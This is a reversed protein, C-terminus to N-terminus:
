AGQPKDIKINLGVCEEGLIVLESTPCLKGAFDKSYIAGDLPSKITNQARNDEIPALSGACLYGNIESLEANM